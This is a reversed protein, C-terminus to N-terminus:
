ADAVARALQRPREGPAGGARVPVTNGRADIKGLRRPAHEARAAPEPLGM